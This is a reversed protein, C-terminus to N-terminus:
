PVTNFSWIRSPTICMDLPIDYASIDSINEVAEFLSLGIKATGPGCEALFRDYFGKGYGVRNGRTDFALLPVFVADVEQASVTTGKEPEPIGWHNVELVTTDDWIFHLMRHAVRDVKSLVLRMLPYAQRLWEAIVYTDPERNGEIPLFLHTTKFRGMDVQRVQEM